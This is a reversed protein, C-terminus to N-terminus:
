QVGLQCSAGVMERKHGKCAKSSRLHGVPRLLQSTPESSCDKRRLIRREPCPQCRHAPIFRVDLAATSPREQARYAGDGLHTYDAM